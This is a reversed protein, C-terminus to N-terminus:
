VPISRDLADYLAGLSIDLWVQDAHEYAASVVVGELMAPLEPLSALRQSVDIDVLQPLGDVLLGLAEEGHGVVLLYRSVGSQRAVGFAAAPDVIPLLGGRVNGLGAFWSATNPIRSVRPPSAVERGADWPLLLGLEGVRFSMRQLLERDLGTRGLRQDDGEPLVFTRDLTSVPDTMAVPSQEPHSGAPLDREIDM